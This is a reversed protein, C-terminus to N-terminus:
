AQYLIQTVEIIINNAREETQKGASVRRSVPLSEIFLKAPQSLIEVLGAVQLVEFPEDM